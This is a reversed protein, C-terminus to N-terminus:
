NIISILSILWLRIKSRERDDRRYNPGMLGFRFDTKLYWMWGFQQLHLQLCGRSWLWYTYWIFPRMSSLLKATPVTLEFNVMGDSSFTFTFDCGFHIPFTNSFIKFQIKWCLAVMPDINSTCYLQLARFARNNKCFVMKLDM